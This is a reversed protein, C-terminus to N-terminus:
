APHEQSTAHTRDTANPKHFCVLTVPLAPRLLRQGALWEGRSIGLQRWQGDLGHSTEFSLVEARSGELVTAIVLRGGPRLTQWLWPLLADLHGDSGGIFVADPPPLAALTESSATECHLALRSSVGFRDRNISLAEWRGPHHEFAHVCGSELQRAWDISVGGCGAGIDWGIDNPRPALLALVQLRMDAKTLLGRGPTPSDTAFQDDPLVWPPTDDLPAAQPETRIKPALTVCVVNLGDFPTEESALASATDFRRVTEEPYGLREGVTCVSHEFGHRVLHTAIAQPTNAADTLLMLTNNSVLHPTLAELPRGHLSITRSAALDVGLHHALYQISSVNPSSEFSLAPWRRSLTNAIGFFRADGSALLVLTGELYSLMPGLEDLPRPLAHRQARTEYPHIMAQQRASGILHDAEALWRVARTPLVAPSEIGLSVVYLTM